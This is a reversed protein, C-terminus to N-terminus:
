KAFKVTSMEGNGFTGKIIYMGKQLSTVDLNVISTGPQVTVMTRYVLKGEMSIVQLDVVDKKVSSLSINAVNVVPNPAVSVLQVDSQNAGVKVIASYNVRGNEDIVKLRYYLTGKNATGNDTFDFPQLCRQQSATFTNIATFDTGNSSREVVFTAEASTCEARWNLTNYDNGKAANFYSIKVPLTAGAPSLTTWAFASNQAQTGGTGYAAKFADLDADAGATTQQLQIASIASTNPATPDTTAGTISLTASGTAPESALSAPNVWMFMRDNTAGSVFDYRIIVLYTTNFSYNNNTFVTSASAGSGKAIGMELNTGDDGLYFSCLNAGAANRLTFIHNTTSGATTTSATSATRVVFSLFFTPAATNVTTSGIFTKYPDDAGGGSNQITLYNTGSAYGSSVMPTANTVQAYTAATTNTWGSSANNAASLNGANLTTFNDNILLSGTQASASLAGITLAILPLFKKMNYM